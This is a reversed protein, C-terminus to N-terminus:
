YFRRGIMEGVKALEDAKEIGETVFKDLTRCMVAGAPGRVQRWMQVEQVQKMWAERQELHWKGTWIREAWYHTTLTSLEEEVELSYVEMFLSM